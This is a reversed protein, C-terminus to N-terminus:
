RAYRQRDDVRSDRRRHAATYDYIKFSSGPQRRAQWARNFQNHLSFEKGGVMALIEGTSPRLAVLAAEHAGIGEAEARGVGWTVAEQAIKQMRTDLSTYVQLGGEEVANKGFLRQLEAIAYTTFYPYRYGQLGSM